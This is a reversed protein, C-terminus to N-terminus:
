DHLKDILDTFSSAITQMPGGEHDWFVVAPNEPDTRYDFCLVNGGGDNAFPVIYRVIDPPLADEMMAMRALISTSIGGEFALLYNIASGDGDALDFANPKPFRGQNVRVVTLYDEPLRWGIAQEVERVQKDSVPPPNSILFDQWRVTM